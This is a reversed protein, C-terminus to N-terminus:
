GVMRLKGAVQKCDLFHNEAIALYGRMTALGPARAGSAIGHQISELRNFRNLYRDVVASSLAPLSSAGSTVLVGQKQALSNLEKIGAVFARGDALDMYNAGAAIAAQAVTYDQGQFPGATHIITNVNLATLRQVLDAAHTDIALGQSPNLGLKKALM